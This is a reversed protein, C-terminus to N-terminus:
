EYGRVEKVQLSGRRIGCAHRVFNAGGVGEHAQHFKISSFLLPLVIGVIEKVSACLNKRKTQAVFVVLGDRLGFSLDPNTVLLADVFPTLTQSIEFSGPGCNWQIERSWALLVIREETIKPHIFNGCRLGLKPGGVNLAARHRKRLDNEQLSGSEIQWDANRRTM